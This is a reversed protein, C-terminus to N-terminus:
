CIKKVLRILADAVNRVDIFLIRGTGFIYQFNFHCTISPLVTWLMLIDTVLTLVTNKVYIMVQFSLTNKDQKIHYYEVVNTYGVTLLIRNRNDNQIATLGCWSPFPPQISKRVGKLFVLPGDKFDTIRSPKM